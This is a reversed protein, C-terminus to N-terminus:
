VFRGGRDEIEEGCLYKLKFDYGNFIDFYNYDDIKM